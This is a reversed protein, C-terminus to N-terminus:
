ESAYEAIANSFLKLITAIELDLAEREQQCEQNYSANGKELFPYERINLDLSEDLKDCLKLGIACIRKYLREEM